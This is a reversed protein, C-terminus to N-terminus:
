GRQEIKKLSDKYIEMSDRELDALSEEIEIEVSHDGEEMKLKAIKEEHEALKAEHEKMRQRYHEKLEDHMRKMDAEYKQRKAKQEAKRAAEEARMQRENEEIVALNHRYQDQLNKKYSHLISKAGLFLLLDDFFDM